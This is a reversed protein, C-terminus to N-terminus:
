YYKGDMQDIRIEIIATGKLMNEPIESNTVNPTYKTIIKNLVESKVKLDGIIKATGSIVVSEYMTNTDCIKGNKDLTIGYMEYINFCVNHNFNINDIKQGKPLGHIYIKDNLYVFHVPIVYPTSDINITAITGTQIRNLLTEIQQKNLQHEKMRHQM